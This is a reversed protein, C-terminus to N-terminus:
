CGVKLRTPQKQKKSKDFMALRQIYVDAFLVYSPMIDNMKMGLDPASGTLTDLDAMAMTTQAVVPFPLSIMGSAASIRVLPDDTGIFGRL